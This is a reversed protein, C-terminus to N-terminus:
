HATPQEDMYEFFGPRSEAERKVSRRSARPLPELLALKLVERMDSVVHVKLGDRM